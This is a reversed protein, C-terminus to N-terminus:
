PESKYQKTRAVPSSGARIEGTAGLVVTAAM